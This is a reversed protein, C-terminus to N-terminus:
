SYCAGGSDIEFLKQGKGSAIREWDTIHCRVIVLFSAWFRYVPLGQLCLLGGDKDFVVKWVWIKWSGLTTEVTTQNWSLGLHHVRAQEQHNQHCAGDRNESKPM